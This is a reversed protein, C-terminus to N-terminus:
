IDLPSPQENGMHACTFQDFNVHVGVPYHACHRVQGVHMTHDDDGALM